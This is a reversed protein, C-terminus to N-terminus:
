VANNPYSRGAGWIIRIAGSQEPTPTGGNSTAGGGGFSGPENATLSIGGGGYNGGNAGNATYSAAAGGFANTSSGAPQVAGNGGNFAGDPSGASSAIGGPQPTAGNNYGTAGAGATMGFMVTGSTTISYPYSTGPTVSINNKYVLAGGGGGSRFTNTGYVREGGFGVLVVCVSRVGTPCVWNGTAGGIPGIFVQQGRIEKATSGIIGANFM